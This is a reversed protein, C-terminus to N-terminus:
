PDGALRAARDAVLRLRARTRDRRADLNSGYTAHAAGAADLTAEGAHVADTVALLREAAALWAGVAPPLRPTDSTDTTETTRSDFTGDTEASSDSDAPAVPRPVGRVLPAGRPGGLPREGSTGSEDTGRGGTTESRDGSWREGTWERRGNGSAVADPDGVAVLVAPPERPDDTPVAYGFAVEDGGAVVVAYSDGDWGAVPQGDRRPPLTPGDLRSEVRVGRAVSTRNRIRGTVLTVGDHTTVATRLTVAESM